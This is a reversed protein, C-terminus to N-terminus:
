SYACDSLNILWALLEKRRCLNDLSFLASDWKLPPTWIDLNVYTKVARHSLELSPDCHINEMFYLFIIMEFNYGFGKREPARGQSAFVNQFTNAEWPLAGSLFPNPYLESIIINKYKVKSHGKGRLTLPYVM